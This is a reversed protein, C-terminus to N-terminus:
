FQGQVAARIQALQEPTINQGQNAQPAGQLGLENIAGFQPPQQPQFGQGIGLDVAQLGSLDVPKGLIANQIQPLGQLLAQQAAINGRGFVDLQAPIAQNFLDFSAQIGKERSEQASPFLKFIDGRAQDRAQKIFAESESKQREASEVNKEASKRDQRSAAVGAVTAAAALATATAIAM